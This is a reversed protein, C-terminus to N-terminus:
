FQNLVAGITQARSTSLGRFMTRSQKYSSVKIRHVSIVQGVVAAIIQADSFRNFPPTDVVIFDFLPRMQEIRQKFGESSLLESPSGKGELGASMVALTPFGEVGNLVPPVSERLAQFLGCALDSDFLRHQSPTRLDADILLTSRGLQAFSLALEASLVSRGERPQASVVALALSAANGQGHRLLLETRLKRIQESHRDGQAQVSPLEQGPRFKPSATFAVTGRRHFADHKSQAETPKLELNRGDKGQSGHQNQANSSDGAAGDGAGKNGPEGDAQKDPPDSDSM